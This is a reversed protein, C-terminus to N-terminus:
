GVSMERWGRWRKGDMSKNVGDAMSARRRWDFATQGKKFFVDGEVRRAKDVVVLTEAVCWWAEELFPPEIDFRCSSPRRQGTMPLAM